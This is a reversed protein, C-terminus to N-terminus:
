DLSDKERELTSIRGQLAAEVGRLERLTGELESQSASASSGMDALQSLLADRTGELEGRLTHSVALDDALSSIRGELAAHERRWADAEKQHEAQAAQMAIAHESAVARATQAADEQCDQRLAQLATVADSAALAMSDKHEKHCAALAAAHDSQLASIRSEMFKRQQNAADTANAQGALLAAALEARLLNLKDQM